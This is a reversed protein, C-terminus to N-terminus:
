EVDALLLDDVNAFLKEHVSSRTQGLHPPAVAVPQGEEMTRVVLSAVVDELQSVVDGSVEYAQKRAEDNELIANGDRFESTAAAVASQGFSNSLIVFDSFDVTGNENIDAHPNLISADALEYNNALTVFDVFDVDGDMDIDAALGPSFTILTEESTLGKVDEQLRIQSTAAVQSTSSASQVSPGWAGLLTALDAGDVQDNGNLDASCEPDTCSGWAGLLTALDAGDVQGNGNLDAPHRTVEDITLTHNVSVNGTNLTVAYSSKTEYDLAVGAKLFLQTGDGNVEFFKKDAGSLTVDNTGGDADTIVIDGLKTADSTNADEAM